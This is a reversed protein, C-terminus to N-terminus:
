IDGVQVKIQALEKQYKPNRLNRDTDIPPAMEWFPDNLNERICALLIERTANLFYGIGNNIFNGFLAEAGDLSVFKKGRQYCVHDPTLFSISKGYHITYNEENPSIPMNGVIEFEGYYFANDAIMQSPLMKLSALEEIPVNANETVIHYVAICLPKGAFIDWFPIGDKRLKAYDVLIRGYGYLNRRIRYRFFDGEKFKQHVRKRQAFARIEALEKEGTDRCWEELWRSLDEFNKVEVSDYESFYYQQQTALNVIGVYGRCCYFQMGNGNAKMLNSATLKKPKGKETKSLLMTGCPSLMQDIDFENYTEQGPIDSVSIVKVIRRGDLFAYVSDAGYKGEVAVKKWTECVLSLGLCRRQENTLEFM